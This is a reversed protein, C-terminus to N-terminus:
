KTTTTGSGHKKRKHNERKKEPSAGLLGRWGIEDAKRFGAVGTLKTSCASMDIWVSKRTASTDNVQGSESWVKVLELEHHPQADLPGSVVEPIAVAQTVDLRM